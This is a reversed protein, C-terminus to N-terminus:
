GETVLHSIKPLGPLGDSLGAMARHRSFTSHFNPLLPSPLLHFPSLIVLAVTSFIRRLLLLIPIRNKLRDSLYIERLPDQNIVLILM